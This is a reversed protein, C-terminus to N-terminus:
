PFCQLMMINAVLHLLGTPIIMEKL